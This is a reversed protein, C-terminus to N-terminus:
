RWRIERARRLGQKTLRYLRETPDPDQTKPEIDGLALLHNLAATYEPASADLGLSEAAERPAVDTAESPNGEAQYGMERLLRRATDDLREM